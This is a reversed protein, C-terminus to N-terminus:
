VDIVVTVAEGKQGTKDEQIECMDKFSQVLRRFEQGDAEDVAEMRKKIQLYFDLKLKSKIAFIESEKDSIKEEAKRQIKAAIKNRHQEREQVWKEATAHNSIQRLTIGYKQALERQTINNNLYDHKIKRWDAAM